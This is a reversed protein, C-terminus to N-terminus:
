SIIYVILSIFYIQFLNLCFFVGLLAPLKAKQISVLANQKSWNVRSANAFWRPDRLFNQCVDGDDRGM